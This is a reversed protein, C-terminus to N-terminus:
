GVVAVQVGQQSLTLLSTAATSTTIVTDGPRVVWGTRLSDQDPRDVRRPELAALWRLLAPTTGTSISIAHGSALSRLEIPAAAASRTAFAGLLLDLATEFAARRHVGARDDIILRGSDAEESGFERVLLPTTNAFSRWHVSSLRDGLQYPRVGLLDVGGASMSVKAWTASDQPQRSDPVSEALQSPRAVPHVVVILDGFTVLRDGFLGLPDYM